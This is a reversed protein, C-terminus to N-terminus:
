YGGFKKYLEPVPKEFGHKKLYELAQIAAKQEADPKRAAAGRGIQQIKGNWVRFITFTTLKEEKIFEKKQTGIADKFYDFVEKLRTISDYLDEYKLSIDIEGFIGALIDYVIAYGVGIRIRNDIIFATAGIFAELIDELLDKRIHNREDESASIFPWLGLSDAIKFFSQRAGYNIKLRAVIKVAESCQLQPFRRYMYWILFSGAHVDGMQEYMEYNNNPDATNSTFVDNYIKMSEDDILISSYHEKLNGKRLISRILTKFDEGRSGRYIVLEEINSDYNMNNMNNM